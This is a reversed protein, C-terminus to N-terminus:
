TNGWELDQADSEIGLGRMIVTKLEQDQIWNLARNLFGHTLMQEATVADIGRSELYLAQDPDLTSTSSGHACKVEDNAILLKPFSDVVAHNSLILNKNKQYAETHHAGKEITVLGNFLTHTRDQAICWASVDSKTHPVSHIANIQTAFKQTGRGRHLTRVEIEAGSGECHAKVEIHSRSAGNQIITLRVRADRAAHITIQAAADIGEGAGANELVPLNQFFIYELESNEKADITLVEVLPVVALQSAAGVGTPLVWEKMRSATTGATCVYIETQTVTAGAFLDAANKFIVPEKM